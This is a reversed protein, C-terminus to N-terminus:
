DEIISIKPTWAKLEDVAQAIELDGFYGFSERLRAIYFATDVVPQLWCRCNIHRPPGGVYTGANRLLSAAKELAKDYADQYLAQMQPSNAIDAPTQIYVDDIDVIQMHLPGCMPCVKEDNATRWSKGSVFGTAKWAMQNGESYLRTVETVAIQGARNAGFIPTLRAELVPLAEGARIWEDIETIARTRTTNNIKSVWSLKYKHLYEVAAANYVDWNLLIRAVAPLADAGAQGGASLVRASIPAIEDWYHAAEDNWFDSPPLNM